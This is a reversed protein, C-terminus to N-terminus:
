SQELYAESDRINEPSLDEKRVGGLFRIGAEFVGGEYRLLEIDHEPHYASHNEAVFWANWNRKVPSLLEGDQSREEHPIERRDLFFGQSFINGYDLVKFTESAM